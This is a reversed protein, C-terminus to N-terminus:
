EPSGSHLIRQKESHYLLFTFRAHTDWWSDNRPVFHRPLRASPATIYYGILARLACLGLLRYLSVTLSPNQSYELLARLAGFPERLCASGVCFGDDRHHCYVRKNGYIANSNQKVLRM